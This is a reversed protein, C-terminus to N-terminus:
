DGSLYKMCEFLVELQGLYFLGRPREKRFFRLLADKTIALAVQEAESEPPEEVQV